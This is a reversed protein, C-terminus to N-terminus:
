SFTKFCYKCKFPEEKSHIRIHDKMNCLKTFKLKCQKCHLIQNMRNTDRNFKKVMIYSGKDIVM